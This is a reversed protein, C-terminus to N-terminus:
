FTGIEVQGQLLSLQGLFQWSVGEGSSSTSTSNGLQVLPIVWRMLMFKVNAFANMPHSSQSHTKVM